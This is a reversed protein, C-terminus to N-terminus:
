SWSRRCAADLQDAGFGKDKALAAIQQEIELRDKEAQTLAGALALQNNMATATENFSKSREAAQAAGMDSRVKNHDADNPTSADLKGEEELKRIEMEIALRDQQAKTYALAKTLADSQARAEAFLPENMAKMMDLRQQMLHLEKQSYETSGEAANREAQSLATQVAMLDEAKKRYEDLTNLAEKMKQNVVDQAKADAERDGKDAPEREEPRRRTSAGEGRQAQRDRSGRREGATRVASTSSGRSTGSCTTRRCWRTSWSARETRSARSCPVWTNIMSATQKGLEYFSILAAAGAGIGRALAGWNSASRAVMAEEAENVGKTTKEAKGVISVGLRSLTEFAGSAAELAAGIIKTLGLVAPTGIVVAEIFGRMEPTLAQLFGTLANIAAAAAHFGATAAAMVDDGVTAKFETWATTMENLARTFETKLQEAMKDAEGGSNDALNLNAKLDKLHKAMQEIAASQEDGIGLRSLFNAPDKGQDQLQKVVELVKQFAEEPKAQALKQFDTAAMGAQSALLTLAQGGNAATQKLQELTREFAMVAM